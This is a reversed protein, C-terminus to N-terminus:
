AAPRSCLHLDWGLGEAVVSAACDAPAPPDVLLAGGARPFLAAELARAELPGLPELGVEVTGPERGLGSGLAKLLAEKRTWARLFARPREAPALCALRAREAGTLTREAVRALERPDALRGDAREVDVGLERGRSLGLLIWEGSRSLSFSLGDGRGALRPKGLEGQEYAIEDPSCGLYGALVARLFCRRALFARRDQAHVFRAGREREEPSLWELEPGTSDEPGIRHWWLHVEGRELRTRSPPPVDM